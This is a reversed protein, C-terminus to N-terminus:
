DKSKEAEEAKPDEEKPGDEVKEESAAASSRAFSKVRSASMSLDQEYRSKLNDVRSKRDLTSMIREDSDVFVKLDHGLDRNQTELM